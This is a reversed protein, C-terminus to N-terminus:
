TETPSGLDSLCFHALAYMPARSPRMPCSRYVHPARAHPALDRALGYIESLMKRAPLARKALRLLM